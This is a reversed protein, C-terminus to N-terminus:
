SAVAPREPQMRDFEYWMEWEGFEGDLLTSEIVTWLRALASADDTSTRPAPIPEHYELQYHGDASSRLTIPVMPAGAARSILVPGLPANVTTGLFPVRRHHKDVGRPDLEPFLSFARGSRLVALARRFTSESGLQHADIDLSPFAFRHLADFNMRNFVLSVPMHHAMLPGIPYSPGVHLPLALVGHGLSQARRLNDLGTVTVVRDFLADPENLWLCLFTSDFQLRPGYVSFRRAQEAKDLSDLAPAQDMFAVTREYIADPHEAPPVDELYSAQAYDSLESMLAWAREPGAAKLSAFLAPHDPLEFINFLPMAM